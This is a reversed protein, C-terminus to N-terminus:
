NGHLLEKQKRDEQRKKTKQANRKKIVREHTLGYYEKEAGNYTDSSCFIKKPLLIRSFYSEYTLKTDFIDENLWSLIEVMMVERYSRTKVGFPIKYSKHLPIFMLENDDGLSEILNYHESVEGTSELM